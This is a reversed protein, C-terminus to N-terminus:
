HKIVRFDDAKMEEIKELCNDFEKWDKMIVNAGNETLKKAMKDQEAEEYPGVYGVVWIGARNASQTGSGSDEIAVCEAPKKGVKECAFLYIAPDPKSTPTPLSTMASFIHEDAFYDKQGAKNISAVVRPKASSSVVALGYKGGEKLEKLVDNVGECPEARESLEKTIAGLERDVYSKNEEDSLKFNYKEQLSKLMGAFNQGVFTSQLEPGTFTKKLSPAKLLLIENALAACVDFAIHESLVLTNDCDFLLHTIPPM